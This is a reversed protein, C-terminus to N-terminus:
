RVGDPGRMLSGELALTAGLQRRADTASAIGRSRVESTSSVQLVHKTTLKALMATLTAAMGDCQARDDASVEGIPRCPLM